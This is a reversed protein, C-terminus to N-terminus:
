KVILSVTDSDTGPGVVTFFGKGGMAIGGGTGPHQTCNPGGDEDEQYCINISVAGVKFPVTAADTSCVVTTSVTNASDCAVPLCPFSQDCAPSDCLTVNVSGAVSDGAASSCSLTIKKNTPSAYAPICALALGLLCGAVIMIKNM